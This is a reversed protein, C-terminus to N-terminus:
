EVTIKRILISKAREGNPAKLTFDSYALFATHEDYACVGTNSCSYEYYAEYVEDKPVAVIPIVEGWDNLNPDECSRIYVGPRGSSMLHIGCDLKVMQPLVGYDYFPRVETWTKGQDKSRAYYLKPAPHEDDGKKFPHLSGSRMICYISGDEVIEIACENFGEIDICKLDNYEKKYVITSVYDWTHGMDDSRLIHMCNRQSGLRGDSTVYPGFAPIWLTGQKDVAYNTGIPPMTRILISNDRLCIPMNQWNVKCVEEVVENTGAKVRYAKFEKAIKDGLIPLLEDVLYVDNVAAICSCNKRYEPLEPLNSVGQIVPFEAMQLYDGNPLPKQATVWSFLPNELYEWTKGEDVSKLIPNSNEQGFTELCDRRNNFRLFLEKKENCRIFPDQYGGFLVPEETSQAVVIPEGINVKRM